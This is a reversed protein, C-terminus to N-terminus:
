RQEIHDVMLDVYNGEGVDIRIRVPLYQLSPAFWMQATINGRPNAIPRPKLHIARVPGLRPTHLTVEEIMDYTWLDVAGPRAMWFQINRGPQLVARGSSFLYALEVFQSATDQVGAPRAVQKGQELLIQQEGLTANRRRSRLQEEYARPLLGQATVTGQSTMTLIKVFAVEVEIRVQYQEGTRQWQVRADGTLEGRYYGSLRYNLRTDAPWPDNSGPPASAPTSAAAATATAMGTASAVATPTVSSATASATTGTTSPPTASAVITPTADAPTSALGAGTTSTTATTAALASPEPAPVAAPEANRASAASAPAAPAAATQASSDDGAKKKDAVRPAAASLPRKVRPPAPAEHVAPPPPPQTPVLLRTFMPTALPRLLPADRWLSQLLSLAAWHGLLVTLVIGAALRLHKPSAM